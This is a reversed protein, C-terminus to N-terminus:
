SWHLRGDRCGTPDNEIRANTFPAAVEQNPTPVALLEQLRRM